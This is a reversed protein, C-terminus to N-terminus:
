SRCAEALREWAEEATMAHTEVLVRFAAIMKDANTTPRRRALKASEEVESMAERVKKLERRSEVLDSESKRLKTEAEIRKSEADRLMSRASDGATAADRELDAVRARLEALQKTARQADAAYSEALAEFDTASPAPEDDNAVPAAVPVLRSAGNPKVVVFPRMAWKRLEDWDAIRDAVRYLEIGAGKISQAIRKVKDGNIGTTVLVVADLDRLAASSPIGDGRHAELEWTVCLSLKEVRERTKRGYEAQGCILGVRRRRDERQLAGNVAGVM